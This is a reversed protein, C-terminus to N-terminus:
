VKGMFSTLLFRSLVHRHFNSDTPLRRSAILSNDVFEEVSLVDDTSMGYAEPLNSDLNNYNRYDLYRLTLLKMDSKM